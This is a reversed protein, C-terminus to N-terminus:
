MAQAPMGAARCDVRETNKWQSYSEQDEAQLYAAAVMGAQVCRDMASGSQAAINYQNVADDAVQGKIEAMQKNAQQDILDQCATLTLLAVGAVFCCRTKM